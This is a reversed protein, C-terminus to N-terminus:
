AWSDPGPLAGSDGVNVRPAGLDTAQAPLIGFEDGGLRAVVDAGRVVGRLRDAVQQLLEDGHDHGLSDNVLKFGNLDLVMVGRAEGTRTALAISRGILDNFLARNALGTLGDHLALQELAETHAKRESVDRVTVLTLSRQAHRFERRELEMTFTSGDARAGIAEIPGTRAHAKAPRGMPTSRSEAVALRNDPAVMFDFPHGVPEQGVYGFLLGASRNMSEVRGASDLMFIGDAVNDLVAQMLVDGDRLASNLCDLEQAQTFLEVMASVKARLISAVVPTFIFDVAGSAYAEAVEGVDHGFSTVVIIFPTHALRSARRVKRATELGDMEPMRVDMLIVAFPTGDIAQLAAAGSDVEVIPLGLPGLMASLALRKDANDDVILIAPKLRAEQVVDRSAAM